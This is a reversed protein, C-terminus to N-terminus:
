NHGSEHYAIYLMVFKMLVQTMVHVHIQIYSIVTYSIYSYGVFLSFGPLGGIFLEVTMGSNHVIINLTVKADANRGENKNTEM